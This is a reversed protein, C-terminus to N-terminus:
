LAWGPRGGVGSRVLEGPAADWMGDSRSVLPYWVRGAESTCRTDGKAGGTPHTDVALAHPSVCSACIMLPTPLDLGSSNCFSTGWCM